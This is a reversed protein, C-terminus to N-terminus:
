FHMTCLQLASFIVHHSTTKNVNCVTFCQPMTINCYVSVSWPALISESGDPLKLLDQPSYRVVILSLAVFLHAQLQGMALLEVLHPLSISCSLLAVAVGTVVGGSVPIQTIPHIWSLFEFLLGDKAVAYMLRLWKCCKKKTM